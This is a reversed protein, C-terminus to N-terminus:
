LRLKLFEIANLSAWICNRHSQVTTYYRLKKEDCDKGVGCRNVPVGTRIKQDLQIQTLHNKECANELEPM